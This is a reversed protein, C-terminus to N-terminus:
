PWLVYLGTKYQGNTGKLHKKKIEAPIEFTGTWIRFQPLNSKFWLYNWSLIKELDRDWFRPPKPIDFMNSFDRPNRIGSIPFDRLFAVKTKYSMSDGSLKTESNELGSFSVFNLHRTKKIRFTLSLLIYSYQFSYKFVDWFNKEEITFNIRKRKHLFM